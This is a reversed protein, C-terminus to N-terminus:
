LHVGAGAIGVARAGAPQEHTRNRTRRDKSFLTKVSCYHNFISGAGEREARPARLLVGGWGGGVGGGGGGRGRGRGRAGRQQGPRAPTATPWRPAQARVDFATGWMLACFICMFHVDTSANGNAIRPPPTPETANYRLSRHTHLPTRPPTVAVWGRCPFM